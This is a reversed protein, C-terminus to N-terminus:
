ICNFHILTHCFHFANVIIIYTYNLIFFIFYIFRFKGFPGVRYAITILVIEKQMFYDPSYLDKTAGGNEFGGGYIWVM